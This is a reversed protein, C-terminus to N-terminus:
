ESGYKGMHLIRGCMINPYGIYRILKDATIGSLVSMIAQSACPTATFLISRSHATIYMDDMYTPLWSLLGLVGWSQCYQVVIIAWVDSRRLLSRFGNHGTHRMQADNISDTGYLM